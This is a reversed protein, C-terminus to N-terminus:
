FHKEQCQLFYILRCFSTLVKERHLRQNALRARDENRLQSLRDLRELEDAHRAAAVKALFEDAIVAGV